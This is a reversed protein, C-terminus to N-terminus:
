LTRGVRGGSLNGEATAASGGNTTKLVVGDVVRSTATADDDLAGATATTNLEVHGVCSALVRINSKGAVVFWGYQGSATFAAQAAGVRSGRTSASNATTIMTANWAEDILCLYGEGTIAASAKAFVALGGDELTVITGLKFPPFPPGNTGPTYVEDLKVGIVHSNPNPATM